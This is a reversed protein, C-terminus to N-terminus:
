INAASTKEFCVWPMEIGVRLTELVKLQFHDSCLANTVCASPRADAIMMRCAESNSPSNIANQWRVRSEEILPSVAVHHYMNEFIEGADKAQCAMQLSPIKLIFVDTAILKSDMIFANLKPYAGAVLFADARGNIVANAADEFSAASILEEAGGWRQAANMSCTLGIPDDCLTALRKIKRGGRRGDSNERGGSIKPIAIWPDKNM